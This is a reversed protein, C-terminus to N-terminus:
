PRLSLAKMVKLCERKTRLCVFGNVFKWYLWENREFDVRAAGEGLPRNIMGVSSRWRLSREGFVVRTLPLGEPFGSSEILYPFTAKRSFETWQALACTLPFATSDVKWIENGLPRYNFCYVQFTKYPLRSEFNAIKTQTSKRNNAIFKKQVLLM